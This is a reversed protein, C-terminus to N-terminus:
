DNKDVMLYKTITLFVGSIFLTKKGAQHPNNSLTSVSEWTSKESVNEQLAKSWCFISLGITMVAAIVIIRDSLRSKISKAM